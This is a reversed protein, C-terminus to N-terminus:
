DSRETVYTQFREITIPSTHPSFRLFAAKLAALQSPASATASHLVANRVAEQIEWFSLGEALDAALSYDAESDLQIAKRLMAKRRVADPLPVYVEREARRRITRLLSDQTWPTTCTLVIFLQRNELTNSTLHTVIETSLGRFHQHEQDSCIAEIHSILLVAPTNSRAHSFVTRISLERNFDRALDECNVVYIPLQSEGACASILQQKGSGSPGYLMIVQPYRRSGIFFQPFKQPLVIWERLLQKVPSLGPLEELTITPKTLSTYPPLSASETAQPPSYPLWEKAPKNETNPSLQSRIEEARTLFEQAKQRM